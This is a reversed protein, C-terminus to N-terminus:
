WALAGSARYNEALLELDLFDIVGDSNLDAAAPTSAGYSMGLTLADFEDIVGNGDVDGALLSITPMTTIIGATLTISAQANLFGPASAVITYDGGSMPLAFTGDPNATQSVVLQNGLDFLQITVAKSALVQGNVIASLAPVGTPSPTIGVVNLTDSIYAIPDLGGVGTSVRATCQVATQGAQLGTIM